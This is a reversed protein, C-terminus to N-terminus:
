LFTVNKKIVFKYKRGVYILILHEIRSEHTPLLSAKTSQFTRLYQVKYLKSLTHSCNIVGACDSECRVSVAKRLEPNYRARM